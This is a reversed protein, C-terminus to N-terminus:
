RQIPILYHQRDTQHDVMWQDVVIHDDLAQITLTHQGSTLRITQRRLAQGRLVNQKWQESRFPEKLSYVM